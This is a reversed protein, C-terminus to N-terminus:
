VHYKIKTLKLNFSPLRSFGGVYLPYYDESIARYYASIYSSAFTEFYGSLCIVGDAKVPEVLITWLKSNCESNPNKLKRLTPSYMRLDSGNERFEKWLQARKNRAWEISKQKNYKRFVSM